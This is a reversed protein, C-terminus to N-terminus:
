GLPKLIDVIEDVRRRALLAARGAPPPREALQMLDWGEFIEELEGYRLRFERSRPGVHDIEPAGAFTDLLYLGGPKVSALLSPMARRDLFDVQVVVDFSTPAFPWTDADVQVLCLSPHPCRALRLAYRSIDAAVVRYGLDLLANTNRGRGCAFDLAIGRDPDHGARPLWALRESPPARESSASDAHKEDWRERDSRSM